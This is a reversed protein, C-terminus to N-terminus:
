ADAHPPPPTGPARAPVCYDGDEEDRVEIAGNPLEKFPLRVQALLSVFLPHHIDLCVCDTAHSM